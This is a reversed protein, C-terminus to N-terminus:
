MMDPMDDLLDGFLDGGGPSPAQMNSFASDGILMDGMPCGGMSLMTGDVLHHTSSSPQPMAGGQGGVGCMARMEDLDFDSYSELSLSGALAGSVPASAHGLNTFEHGYGGGNTAWQEPVLAFSSEQKMPGAFQSSALMSSLNNCSQSLTSRGHAAQALQMAQQYQGMDFSARHDEGSGGAGGHGDMPLLSYSQSMVPSTGGAGSSSPNQAGGAGCGAESIRRLSADRHPDLSVGHITPPPGDYGMQTLARSLKVIQRRPWRKIGHRRCARKLTTACIGLNRAAQKLGVGFQSQLEELKLRKGTGGSTRNRNATARDEDELEDDGESIDEDEDARALNGYSPSVPNLVDTSGARALKGAPGSPPPPVLGLLEPPITPPCPKAKLPRAPPQQLLQKLLGEQKATLNAVGIDIGFGPQPFTMSPLSSQASRGDKGDQDQMATQLSHLVDAGMGNASMWSALQRVRDDPSSLEELLNPKWSPTPQQSGQISISLAGAHPPSPGQVTNSLLGGYGHSNERMNQQPIPQFSRVPEMGVDGDENNEEWEGQLECAVLLHSWDCTALGVNQVSESLRSLLAPSVNGKESRLLELVAVAKNMNSLQFIPVVLTSHVRCRQAETVRLYVQRDHKQVDHSMEPGLTSYVRGIAGMLSPRSSDASFRYRVSVCRFLALLDGVGVISFPLGQASLIESNDM